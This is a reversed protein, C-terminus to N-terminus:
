PEGRTRADHRARTRADRSARTGAPRLPTGLVEADSEYYKNGFSDTGVHAGVPKVDGIYYLQRWTRQVGNAFLGRVIRSM